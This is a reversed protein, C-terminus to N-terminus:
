RGREAEGLLPVRSLKREPHAAVAELVRGYHEAMRRISAESWLERRYALVGRIEEGADGLTLSLDFKVSGVAGGLSEVATEGLRLESSENNQLNFMVQFLPTHAQSREVGLDEVLKEFPLDQHQYAGLTSERVRHLLEAFEPDGSLDARLVLTNLFFGILGETELRNRGAIPSGVVVDDQGSYRSLLLQWAALLTMFLTAGERRSLRRLAAATEAGITFGISAGADGPALPRPHDTPLELLAPAGALRARWYGIQAELVEGSLWERQWVAYDAYQIPLEPLPAEEGRSFAEYLTSLEGALIGMSWGDSVIHHLTLLVVADDDALRLVTGRLLPGAALDFPRQAERAALREVEADRPEGHLGGLDVVPLRVPLAPGVEQVPQGDRMPFRARLSEHRRVVESLARELAALDLVGRVRMRSPMNYAARGPQLRDVFWLRQQAFSLPLPRGDRPVPLIPPAQTGVSEARLRVIEEALGAVTSAAFLARLPLEVGFAARIRSVVRTALLSHGGLEFFDDRAGVREVGLVEAWVGALVEETPTRPAAHREKASALEPAPLAKRDLKGSSNVPLADMVVFAAPIMYEPLRGRLHERAEDAAVEGAVYAVLRRDGATDERVVVAAERVGPWTRLAAEIEGPEVRFGRVKVQTDIRGLFELEGEATWRVRDGSRYLRAGPVGGFPDPVFTGATLAARALYGRTVGAGGIWLEGPVGVPVPRGVADVVYFATNAIPVGILNQGAADEGVRHSSCAVTAETPGYAVRVDANPFVEGMEVWLGAPVVDGGVCAMRMGPLGAPHTARLAAAVQRMLAPVMYAATVGELAEVLAPPDMAQERPVMRVAGGTALPVLAQYVWVDFSISALCLTTDRPGIGLS